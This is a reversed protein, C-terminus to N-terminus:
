FKYILTGIVATVKPSLDQTLLNGYAEGPHRDGNQTYLEARFSIERGWDALKRGAELGFTTATMDGLRYDASMTQPVAAGQVVFYRYFDAKHQIYYRASPELYWGHNLNFHYDLIFTHSTIGWNDFYYRYSTGLVGWQDLHVRSDAFVANRLRSDPRKEFYYVGTPDGATGGGPAVVESVIKYPDNMYGSSTGLNYNLQLTWRRNMVQTVGVLVDLLNKTETSGSVVKGSLTSLAQPVGGVPKVTDAEFNLGLSLKTNKKDFYRSLSGNASLSTFDYEMSGNAGASFEYNEAFPQSWESAVAYRTDKFEPDLPAEGPNVMYTSHGSPSTFTQPNRSAVAGNPSPGTLADLVVKNTWHRDGSYEGDLTIVPEIARVRDTESYYLNSFSGSWKPEAHAPAPALGSLLATTASALAMKINKKKAVPRLQM